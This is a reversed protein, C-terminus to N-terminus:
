LNFSTARGYLLSDLLHLHFALAQRDLFKPGNRYDSYECVGVKSSAKLAAYRSEM